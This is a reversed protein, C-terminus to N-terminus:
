RGRRGERRGSQDGSPEQKAKAQDQGQDDSANGKEPPEAKAALAAKLASIESDRAKVTVLTEKIEDQLCAVENRLRELEAGDKGSLQGDGQAQVKQELRARDVCAQYALRALEERSMARLASDNPVTSVKM